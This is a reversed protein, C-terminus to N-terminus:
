RRAHTPVVRHTVLGSSSSTGTLSCVAFLARNWRNWSAVFV